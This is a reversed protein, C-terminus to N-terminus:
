REVTAHRASKRHTQEVVTIANTQTRQLHETRCIKQQQGVSATTNQEAYVM